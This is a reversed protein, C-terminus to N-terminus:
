ATEQYGMWLPVEIIYPNSNKQQPKTYGYRFRLLEKSARYADRSSFEVLAQVRTFGDSLTVKNITSLAAGKEDILKQLLQVDHASLSPGRESTCIQFSLMTAIVFFMPLIYSITMQERM